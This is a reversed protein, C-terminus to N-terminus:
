DAAKGSIRDIPSDQRKAIENKIAGFRYAYAQFLASALFNFDGRWASYALSIPSLPSTFLAVQSHFVKEVSAFLV